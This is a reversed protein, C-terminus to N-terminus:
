GEGVQFFTENYYGFFVFIWVRLVCCLLLRMGNSVGVKASGKFRIRRLRETYRRLEHTGTPCALEVMVVLATNERDPYEENM